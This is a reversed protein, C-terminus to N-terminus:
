GVRSREFALLEKKTEIGGAFGVLDGSAGIVRHCPLIISIPNRGTASGVARVAKPRGIRKAQEGYTATDGYPITALAEWTKRQFETGRLDFQIDFQTRERELYEALQLCAASLIPHDATDILDDPLPVRTPSDGSWTLARLGLDTAVVTLKGFQSEVTTVYHRDDIM